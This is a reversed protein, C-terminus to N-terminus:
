RIMVWPAAGRFGGVTVTDTAATAALTDNDAGLLASIGDDGTAQGITLTDTGSGFGLSGSDVAATTISFRDDGEFANVTIKGGAVFTIIDAASTGALTTSTGLTTTTYAM